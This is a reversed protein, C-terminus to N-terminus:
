DRSLLDLVWLGRRRRKIPKGCRGCQGRYSLGDWQVEAVIPDHRNMWCLPKLLSM